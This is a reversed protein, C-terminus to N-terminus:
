NTRLGGPAVHQMRTGSLPFLRAKLAPTLMAMRDASHGAVAAVIRYNFAIDM